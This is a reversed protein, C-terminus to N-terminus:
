ENSKIQNEITTLKKDTNFLYIMIGIFIIVLVGVVTYLKGNSMMMTDFGNSEQAHATITTLFICAVSLYIKTGM